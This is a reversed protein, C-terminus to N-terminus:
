RDGEDHSEIPMHLRVETGEGPTSRVEARGGHREMRDIISHRVGYRDEAISGPDFGNGRDRVFVEVAPSAIEAYVDVKGTGAHKAANVMAERAALVVPRIEDAMARDGVTVVDVAVGHADEVEAAAGRLASAVTSDDLADQEFLWARLDREQGRALRAVMTADGANKQILALTQLVSDHLHAALDAREQSRVREARESTLDSALRFIWPGVTIALGAVGLLGAILVDRAIGLSGSRLSFVLLATVILVLGAAVRAYSAWGGSGFVARVPDIRGTTDLWRERQAEDAQRWLLAVGGLALALPWFLAGRGLLAEIVFVVGLALAALAVVPGVDGLRRLPGARKGTRTASALGPAEDGFRADTPLVMWLGAYFAVGIGGMAALVVFAARVWIVPVALHRALGSAVGGIVNEHSDRTARRVEPPHERVERPLEHPTSM